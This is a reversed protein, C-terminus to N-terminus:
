RKKMEKYKKTEKKKLDVKPIPIHATSVEPQKRKKKRIRRKEEVVEKTESITDVMNCDEGDELGNLM